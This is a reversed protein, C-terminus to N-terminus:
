RIVEVVGCLSVLLVVPLCCCRVVGVGVGLSVM